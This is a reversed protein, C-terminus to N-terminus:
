SLFSAHVDGLIHHLWGLNLLDAPNPSTIGLMTIEEMASASEINTPLLRIAEAAVCKPQDLM